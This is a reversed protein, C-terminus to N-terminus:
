TWIGYQMAYEYLKSYFDIGCKPHYSSGVIYQSLSDLMEFTVPNVTQILDDMQERANALISAFEEYKM